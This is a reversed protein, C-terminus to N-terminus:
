AGMVEPYTHKILSECVIKFMTIINLSKSNDLINFCIIIYLVLLLFIVKQLSLPLAFHIQVIHGRYIHLRDVYIVQIEIKISYITHFGLLILYLIYM